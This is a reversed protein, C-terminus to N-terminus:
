AGGRQAQSRAGPLPLVAHPVRRKWARFEDGFRRELEADEARILLIGTAIAFALMAFLAITGAAATLAMLVLLHALYVPHRVVDRVGGTVLKQERGQELETRGILMEQTFGQRARRYVFIAAALLVGGGLLSFPSEYLLVERWPGTAALTASIMLAWLPALVRYPARRTRWREAFPHAALWFGPITAYVAGLLWAIHLLVRLM